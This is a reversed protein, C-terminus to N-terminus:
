SKGISIPGLFRVLIDAGLLLMCAALRFATVYPLRPSYLVIGGFGLRIAVPFLIYSIFTRSLFFAVLPLAFRSDKLADDRQKASPAYFAIASRGVLAVAGTILTTVFGQGSTIRDMTFIYLGVIPLTVAVVLPAICWVVLLRRFSVVTAVVQALTLPTPDKRRSEM